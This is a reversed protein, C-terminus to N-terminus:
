KTGKFAVVNDKSHQEKHKRLYSLANLLFQENDKFQGLGNNCNNCLLGRIAGTTHCHDVSLAVDKGRRQTTEVQYCIGCKGDQIVIMTEYERIGIGFDSMLSKDKYRRPNSERWAKGYASRGEPTHHNFDGSKKVFLLNDWKINAKNKDKFQIVGDPIEGTQLIWAVRQAFFDRNDLNIVRYGQNGITGAEQGTRDFKATAKKWFIKGSIPDYSLVEKIREVPIPAKLKIKKM